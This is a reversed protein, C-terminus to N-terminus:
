KTVGERRMMAYEEALELMDEDPAICTYGLESFSFYLDSCRECLYVPALKIIDGRARAEKNTLAGRFRTFKAVMSGQQIFDKCSSCRKRRVKILQGGFLLELRLPRYDMEMYDDPSEYFWDVFGGDPCECSLPM